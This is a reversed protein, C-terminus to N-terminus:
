PFMPFMPFMPTPFDPDSCFPVLHRDFEFGLQKLKSIIQRYKFGALRGM